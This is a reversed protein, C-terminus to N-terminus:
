FWGYRIGTLYVAFSVSVLVLALRVALAAPRPMNREASSDIWNFLARIPAM